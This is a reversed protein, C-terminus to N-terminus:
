RLIGHALRERVPGILFISGAVVVPRDHECARALAVFPDPEVEVNAHVTRALAAISDADLARPSPATTCIIRAASEAVARLMGDIAKDKMAGFVLTVGGPVHEELYSALARAGATNHAADLIVTCGPASFRELRGPWLTQTLGARAASADSRFGREDLVDLLGLAVKANDIQHRGELALRVDSVSLRPTRFRLGHTQDGDVKVERDAPLFPAKRGVCTREIVDRAEDPLPGCVVPIGSKIIGAKERAISTLTDGLQAQHDFDISVIAAAIPSVINTADLRGGLGVELIALQVRADRFLVFAIATACEFFTPLADLVGDAVLREAAYQVRQAASELAPADAERGDIVFREELRILHPSTYRAVAHGAARLATDLMATVSGKGNTGGVIVSAFSAEPHDLAECLRAMNALGFKMGFRELSFLFDVATPSV